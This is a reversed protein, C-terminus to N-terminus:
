SSFLQPKQVRLLEVGFQAVSVDKGFPSLRLERYLAELFALNKESRIEKVLSSTCYTELATYYESVDIKEWGFLAPLLSDKESADLGFLLPPIDLLRALIWRRKKDIPVM